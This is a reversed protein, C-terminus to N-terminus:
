EVVGVDQFATWPAPARFDLGVQARLCGQPLCGRDRGGRSLPRNQLTSLHGTKLHGGLGCVRGGRLCVESASMARETLPPQRVDSFAPSRKRPSTRVKFAFRSRLKMPSVASPALSRRGESESSTEWRTSVGYPGFSLRRGAHTWMGSLFQVGTLPLLWSSFGAFRPSLAVSPDHLTKGIVRRM